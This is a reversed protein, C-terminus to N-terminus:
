SRVGRAPAPREGQVFLGTAGRVRGIVRSDPSTWLEALRAGLVGVAGSPEPLLGLAEAVEAAARGTDYHHEVLRRGARGLAAALRIDASIRRALEDLGDAEGVMVEIGDRAGLAKASAADTACPAGWALAELLGQGQAVVSSALTLATAALEPPPAGPRGLSITLTEPLRLRRRWRSRVFPTMPLYRSVDLGNAPIFITPRLASDMVVPDDTILLHARELVEAAAALSEPDPVWVALPRQDKLARDIDFAYPTLAFWVVAEHLDAEAVRPL